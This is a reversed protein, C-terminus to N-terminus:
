TNLCKSIDWEWVIPRSALNSWCSAQTWYILSLIGDNWFVRVPVSRGCQLNWVLLLSLVHSIFLISFLLKVFFFPCYPTQSQTYPTIRHVHTDLLPAGGITPLASPSYCTFSQYNTPWDVNRVISIDLWVGNRRGNEKGEWMYGTGTDLESIASKTCNTGTLILLIVRKQQPM